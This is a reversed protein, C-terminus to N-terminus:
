AAAAEVAEAVTAYPPFVRNLGTLHLLRVFHQDGGALALSGGHARLRKLGGVLVGLGTSDIFAIGSTDVVVHSVGEAVLEALRQRLAPATYVDVEGEVRLVACEGYPEVTELRLDRM